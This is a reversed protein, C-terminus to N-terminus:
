FESWIQHITQTTGGGGPTRAELYMVAPFNSEAVAGFTFTYLRRTGPTGQDHTDNTSLSIPRLWPASVIGGARLGIELFMGDTADDTLDIVVASPRFPADNMVNTARVVASSITLENFTASQANTDRVWFSGVSGATKWPVRHQSGVLLADADATAAAAQATTIRAEGINTASATLTVASYTPGRDAVKIADIANGIDGTSLSVAPVLLSGGAGDSIRVEIPTGPEVTAM